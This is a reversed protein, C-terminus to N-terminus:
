HDLKHQDETHAHASRSISSWGIPKPDIINNSMISWLPSTTTKVTKTLSNNSPNCGPIWAICALQGNAYSESTASIDIQWRHESIKADKSILEFTTRSDVFVEIQIPAGLILALMERIAYANNFGSNPCASRKGYRLTDGTLM